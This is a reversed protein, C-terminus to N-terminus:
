RILKTYRYLSGPRLLGQLILKYLGFDQKCDLAVLAAIWVVPLPILGNRQNPVLVWPKDTAVRRLM